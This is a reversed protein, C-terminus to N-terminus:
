YLLASRHVPFIHTSQETKRIPRQPQPNSASYSEINAISNYSEFIISSNKLPSSLHKIKEKGQININRLYGGSSFDSTDEIYSAYIINEASLLAGGPINFSKTYAQNGFILTTEQITLTLWTFETDSFTIAPGYQIVQQGGYSVTIQNSNYMPELSISVLSKKLSVSWIELINALIPYQNTNGSIQVEFTLQFVLPLSVYQIPNNASIQQLDSFSCLKTCDIYTQQSSSKHILWISILQILLICKIYSMKFPSDIIFQIGLPQKKLNQIKTATLFFSASM